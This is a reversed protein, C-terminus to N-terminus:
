TTKCAGTIIIDDTAIFNGVPVVLWTADNQLGYLTMYATNKQWYAMLQTKSTGWSIGGGFVQYVNDCEDAPTVPFNYIELNGAPSGSVSAIKIRITFWFFNGIKIYSGLRTTYTFTGATSSGRVSPQFTGQSFGVITAAEDPFTFTRAQTPGAFTFYQNGFLLTKVEALTKKVVSALGDGVFFDSAATILSKLPYRADGRTDTHYQTHDDHSLGALAGHETVGLGGGSGQKLVVYDLSLAHTNIGTDIHRFRLTVAGSNIYASPYFIPFSFWQYVSSNTMYGLIDYSTTDKNYLEIAVNHSAGGAYKAYILVQNFQTISTFGISVQLANTGTAETIGMIDTGIDDLSTYGGAALTGYTVTHSAANM